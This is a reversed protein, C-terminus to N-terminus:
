VAYFCGRWYAGSTSGPRTLALFGSSRRDSRRGNHNAFSDPYLQFREYRETPSRAAKDPKLPKEGGRKRNGNKSTRECLSSSRSFHFHVFRFRRRRFLKAGLDARM